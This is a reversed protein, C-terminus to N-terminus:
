ADPPGEVLILHGGRLGCHMPLMMHLVRASRMADEPPSTTIAGFAAQSLAIAIADETM